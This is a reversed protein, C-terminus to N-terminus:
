HNYMEGWLADTSVLLGEYVNTISVLDQQLEIIELWLPLQIILIIILILLLMVLIVIFDVSNVRNPKSLLGTELDM